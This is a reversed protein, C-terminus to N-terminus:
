AYWPGDLDILARGNQAYFISVALFKTGGFDVVQKDAFPLTYLPSALGPLEGRVYQLTAESNTVLWVPRSLVVNPGTGMSSGGLATGSGAGVPQGLVSKVLGSVNGSAYLGAGSPTAGAYQGIQGGRGQGALVSAYADPSAYSVLDGFYNLEPQTGYGNICIYFFRDNGVIVWPKATADNAGKNWATGNTEQALTPSPGTFTNADTASEVMRARATLASSGNLHSDNVWLMQATAEPATRAFISVNASNHPEAWGLPARKASITGTYTGDPVGVAPYTFSNTLIGGPQKIGNLLPESAGSIQLLKGHTGVFGHAASTATAVGSTVSISTVTKAGFGNVLCARLVELVSGAVNNITPAGVETSDYWIPQTM